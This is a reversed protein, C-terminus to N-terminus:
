QISFMLSSTDANREVPSGNAERTTVFVLAEYKEDRNLEWSRTHRQMDTTFEDNRYLKFGQGVAWNHLGVTIPKDGDIAHELEIFCVDENAGSPRLTIVENRDVKLEWVGRREKFGLPKALGELKGNGQVLPTCVKDLIQLVRLTMPDNPTPPLKVPEAVKPPPPPPPVAAIEAATPGTYGPPTIFTIPGTIPKAAPAPVAAAPAGAAAPTGVDQALAPASTMAAIAIVCALAQRM